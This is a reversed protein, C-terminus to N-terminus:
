LTEERLYRRITEAILRGSSKPAYLGPLGRAYVTDKANLGPCSALDIKICSDYRNLIDANLIPAPVTNFIANVTPLVEPIKPIDVADWGLAAVIARDKPNRAAVTVSCGLGTLLKTLCKGIRGWGIVLTPTESLLGPLLPYAVQLACEATIAANQALYDNDLLLDLTSYDILSPHKLKGGIVTIGTPLRELVRPLSGGGRLSGDDSFSPVDLLLHTVEPAPHDTLAFGVQKLYTCAFACADTTGIPYILIHEM